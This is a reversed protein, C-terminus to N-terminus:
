WSVGGSRVRRGPRGQEDLADRSGAEPHCHHTERRAHLSAWAPMPSSGLFERAVSEESHSAPSPSQPYVRESHCALPKKGYWTGGRRCPSESHCDLPKKHAVHGGATMFTESRCVRSGFIDGAHASAHAPPPRPRSRALSGIRPSCRATSALLETVPIGFLAENERLYPEILRWDEGSLRAFRGSNLQDDNVKGHPDRLYITGGSALSFLNGGPYPTDLEILRGAEDFTIGNLIAFGGGKLPDGAMFSEALYDLCTGNIVARPRGM